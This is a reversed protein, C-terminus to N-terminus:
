YVLVRASSVTCDNQSFNLPSYLNIANWHESITNDRLGYMNVEFLNIAIM